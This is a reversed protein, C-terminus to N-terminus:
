KRNGMILYLGITFTYKLPGTFSRGYNIMVMTRDGNPDKGFSYGFCFRYGWFDMSRTQYMDSDDLYTYEGLNLYGAGAGITIGNGTTRSNGTSAGLNFELMVPVDIGYTSYDTWFDYTSKGISVPMTMVLAFDTEQLIRFGPTLNVSPMYFFPGTYNNYGSCTLNVGGRLYLLSLHSQAILPRDANLM